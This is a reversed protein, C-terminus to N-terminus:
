YTLTIVAHTENKGWIHGPIVRFCPPFDPCRDKCNKTFSIVM